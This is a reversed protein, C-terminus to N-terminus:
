RVQHKNIPKHKSKSMKLLEVQYGVMKLCKMHNRTMKNKEISVKILKKLQNELWKM